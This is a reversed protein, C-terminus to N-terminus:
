SGPPNDSGVAVGVAGGVFASFIVAETFDPTITRTVEPAAFETQLNSILSRLRALEAELLAIDEEYLEFMELIAKQAAPPIQDWLDKEIPPDDVVAVTRYGYAPNVNVLRVPGGPGSPLFGGNGRPPIVLNGQSPGRGLQRELSAVQGQLSVVDTELAAIRREYSAVLALVETQAAAPVMQWLEAEIPAEGAVFPRRNPYRVRAQGRVVVQNSVILMGPRASPPATGTAWARIFTASGAADVRYLGGRLGTIQFHGQENTLSSAFEQQSSLITVPTNSDGLGQGNVLQGHLSGGLGLAVDQIVPGAGSVACPSLLLIVIAIMSVVSKSPKLADM